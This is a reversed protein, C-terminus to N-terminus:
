AFSWTAKRHARAPLRVHRMRGRVRVAVQITGSAQPRVYGHMAGSRTRTVGIDPLKLSFRRFPLHPKIVYGAETPEIGALKVADFLSWAPQHMIQTSYASSLGVGCREPDTSYWSRCADDVSLIGNWHDPYVTARRALTNRKFEDFAYRRAGPVIGDLHALGWVLWGDVAFWHGGVFVAHNDGVGAKGGIDKETVDPDDASPSQSSGIRAPGGPAGIGTLFRRINAVLLKAQAADPVGALMAWPQPEGYIAGTGFKRVGASYGRAYWGKDVWEGKLVNRLEDSLSELRQAFATDGRFRALQALRAYIYVAQATVLTSETMQILPTSLDSWDGTSGAIYAGHPGRQSEQHDVAAKLHEWLTANGADAWRVTRDFFASDRSALGYEAATLLLWLDLDDSTGLDFRTCNAIRAYPIAGGVRPQEQASYELVERALFPDTYIMPLVHQLPDRYAGQFDLDYQYYGGQSIIHHGACDEYTTGSRVMYADWQLERNIWRKGFDVQPLRRRWARASRAYSKAQKRYRDVLEPIRDAHTQGYAYRLTVTQGPKLTRPARFVFAQRGVNGDPAPSAISDSLEDAQASAPAQRGGDGFFAGADTEFGDTRGRLAAAFITLPSPDQPGPLQAVQLTEGDRVPANLGPHSHPGPFYPNVDWYEFWSVRHPVADTNRLTVDHLLLPDDGYPAYVRSAVKVHGIATRTLAYGAGFDRTFPQGDARDAYLTTGLKGDVNLYGYGGAYHGAGPEAYNAWQYLHDMTWLQTYGHNYANAVVHDNGVQHWAERAGNLESQAAQPATAEDIAYRYRPLGDRDAGWRGFSGSGYSSDIRVRAQAPACALMLVVSAVLAGWARVPGM